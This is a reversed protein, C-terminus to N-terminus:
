MAGKLVLVDLEPTYCSAVEFSSAALAVALLCVKRMPGACSKARSGSSWHGCRVFKAVFFDGQVVPFVNGGEPEAGQDLGSM